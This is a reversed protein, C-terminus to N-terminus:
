GGRGYLMLEAASSTDMKGLRCIEKRPLGLAPQLQVHVHLDLFRTFCSIPFKLFLELAGAQPPLVQM